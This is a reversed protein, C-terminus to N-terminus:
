KKRSNKYADFSDKAEYMYSRSQRYMEKQESRSEKSFNNSIAHNKAMGAQLCATVVKVVAKALPHMAM